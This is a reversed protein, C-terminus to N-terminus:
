IFFAALTATIANPSRKEALAAAGAFVKTVVLGEAPWDSSDAGLATVRVASTGIRSVPFSTTTV